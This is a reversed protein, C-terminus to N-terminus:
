LEKRHRRRLHEDPQVRRAQAGPRLPRLARHRQRHSARKFKRQIDEPKEMLFVCGEPISKSMKSDPTTLGMIRAGAKPIYPEPMKFVEGYIGNFRQVINRTSSWM